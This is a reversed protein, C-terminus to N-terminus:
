FVELDVVVNASSILILTQEPNQNNDQNDYISAAARQRVISWGQLKHGLLHNITNSGTTLSVNKLISKNNTPNAIFPNLISSWKSQVLTLVQDSTNFSPLQM